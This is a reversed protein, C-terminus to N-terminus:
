FSQCVKFLPFIHSVVSTLSIDMGDYPSLSWTPRVKELQETFDIKFSQSLTCLNSHDSILSLVVSFCPFYLDLGEPTIGFSQICISEM